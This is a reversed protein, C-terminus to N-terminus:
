INATTLYSFCRFYKSDYTHGEDYSKVVLSEDTTIIMVAVVAVVVVVIIVVFDIVFIPHIFFLVPFISAINPIVDCTSYCNLKSINTPLM